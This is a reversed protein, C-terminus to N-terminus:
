SVSVLRWRNVHITGHLFRSPNRQKALPKKVERLSKGAPAEGTCSFCTRGWLKLKRMVKKPPVFSCTNQRAM